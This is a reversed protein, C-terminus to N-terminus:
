TNKDQISRNLNDIEQEIEVLKNRTIQLDAKSKLSQDSISSLNNQYKKELEESEIDADEKIQKMTEENDDLM